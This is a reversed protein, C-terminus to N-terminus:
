SLKSANQNCIEFFFVLISFLNDMEQLFAYNTNETFQTDELKGFQWNDGNSVIGFVPITPNNNIKQITYMELLCQAWGGEFDDKKAEVVALLPSGFVIKGLHSQKAVIYDPMGSLEKSFSLSKNAWLMLTQDYIKWVEKLIPFLITERIAAESINYPYNLIIYKLEAKLLEPMQLPPVNVIFEDKKISLQFKIAVEDISKFKKFGMSIYKQISGCRNNKQVIQNLGGQKLRIIPKIVETIVLNETSEGAINAECDLRTQDYTEGLPNHITLGSQSKEHMFEISGDDAL